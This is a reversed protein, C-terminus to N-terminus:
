KKTLTIAAGGLTPAVGIQLRGKGRGVTVTRGAAIGITAGLVVDSLHHKNAAMRSAGVYAGFAYAPGGLKWGFHRQVVTATAFAAAAHGSPLSYNNSGDPRLRYTGFKGAQVLGQTLLQARVLDGSFSTLENTGTLQRNFVPRLEHRDARSAAVSTGRGSCIPVFISRRSRSGEPMGGTPQSRVLGASGM